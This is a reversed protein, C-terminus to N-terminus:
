KIDKYYKKINNIDTVIGFQNYRCIYIELMHWPMDKPQLKWCKWPKDNESDSGSLSDGGESGGGRRTQIDDSFLKLLCESGTLAVLEM